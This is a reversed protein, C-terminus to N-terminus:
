KGKSYYEEITKLAQEAETVAKRLSAIAEEVESPMSSVTPAHSESMYYLIYRCTQSETLNLLNAIKKLRTHIDSSLTVSRAKKNASYDLDQYKILEHVESM